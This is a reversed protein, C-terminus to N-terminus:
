SDAPQNIITEQLATECSCSFHELVEVTYILLGWTELALGPSEVALRKHLRVGVRRRTRM